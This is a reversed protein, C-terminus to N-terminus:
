GINVKRPDEANKPIYFTGNITISPLVKLKVWTFVTSSGVNYKEAAKDVTMFDLFNDNEFILKDELDNQLIYMILEKGTM